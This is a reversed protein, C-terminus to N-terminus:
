LTTSTVGICDATFDATKTIHMHRYKLGEAVSHREVVDVKSNMQKSEKKWHKKKLNRSRIQHTRRSKLSFVNRSEREALRTFAM